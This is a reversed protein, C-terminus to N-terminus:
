CWQMSSLIFESKLFFIRSVQFADSLPFDCVRIMQIQEYATFGLVSSFAFVIYFFNNMYHIERLM